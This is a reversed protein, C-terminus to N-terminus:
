SHTLSQIAIYLGLCLLAVCLVIRFKEESIGRRIRNGISMGVLAPILSVASMVLLNVSLLDQTRLSWALGTTSLTFLIGMGQVLEDRLFGLSQLYFVGPVASSGTMGTLFGNTAGFLVGIPHNWWKDGINVRLRFLGLAGYVALGMGLLSSMVDARFYGLTFAGSATFVTAALLFPWTIAIVKRAHGGRVAQLVNTLFTPILILVKAPQIGITATLVGLVVPPLGLGTLGKIVGGLFFTLVILTIGVADFSVPHTGTM